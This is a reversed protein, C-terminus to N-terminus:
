KRCLKLYARMKRVTAEAAMHHQSTLENSDRNQNKQKLYKHEKEAVERVAM